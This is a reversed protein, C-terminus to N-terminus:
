HRITFQVAVSRPRETLAYISGTAGTVGLRFGATAEDTLNKGIVALEWRRDPAEVALRADVKAYGSQVFLPDNTASQNYSSTFYLSPDFRVTYDGAPIKVGIGVNGSFEPAYARPKGSLDQTCGRTIAQLTACPASPFSSYRSRLYAVDANFSLYDTLRLSTSFEVGQSRVTSANLVLTQLSGDALVTSTSEQLDDYNGLFYDLSFFLRRDLVTGKIGIEYANVSEPGFTNIIATHAFGGAKFGKTYSLYAMIDDAVDYQLGISPLFKQDTRTPNPFDTLSANLGLKSVINLPGPVLDAGPYDTSLLAGPTTAGILVTRHANKHSGAYRAGANIRLEPTVKFTASAFAAWTTQKEVVSITSAIPTGANYLPAGSAGFAQYFFGSTSSTMLKSRSGYVGVLYSFRDETPSELRLEQSYFDYSEKNGIPGSSGGGIGTVPVPMRQSLSEVDHTFYGSTATLNLRGIPLSNTWGIETFDYNFYSPPQATRYNLEDDVAGGAQALYTACTGRPAGYAPDPACNLLEGQVSNKTRTRGFDVRLDSRIESTPQWAFSVRGVADRVHPGYEDLLENYVYGDMGSLRGAVRASLTESIPATLAGEVNYENDSPAYLASANYTFDEGPKRTTINLAGAIANNGFFTTQPGKLVEVREIDLFAGRTGRARGRYLGDVFTGVSQEFGSNQGSGVGRVNLVDVQASSAIRVNPLRTALDELNRINASQLAAGSVVSVSVPVDQLRQERRQATVVIADDEVSRLAEGGAADAPASGNEPDTSQPAAQVDVAASAMLAALVLLSCRSSIRVRETM